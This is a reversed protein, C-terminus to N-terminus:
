ISPVCLSPPFGTYLKAYLLHKLDCMKEIQMSQFEVSFYGIDVEDNSYGLHFNWPIGRLLLHRDMADAFSFIYQSPLRVRKKFQWMSNGEEDIERVTYVLYSSASIISNYVTFMGISGEEAEVVVSDQQGHGSPISISSFEMSRPDLVLFKNTGTVNWYFCGCAYSSWSFKSSPQVSADVTLSEWQGTASSFVFAVLQGPKCEVVCVVRFLTEADEDSAPVLFPELRGRRQAAPRGPIQPLLLYRRSLPDCVAFDGSMAERELLVRGDRADVPIWRGASPVFSFSLDAGARQLARAFPANSHPPEAPHISSFLLLGLLPSAHVSRLRRLFARDAVVRRFASCATAARGVDALAPLRLFIEVLLDDSLRLLLPLPAPAAIRKANPQEPSAM